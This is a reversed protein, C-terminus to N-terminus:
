IPRDLALASRGIEGLFNSKNFVRQQGACRLLVIGNRHTDRSWFFRPFFFDYFYPQFSIPYVDGPRSLTHTNKVALRKNKEVRRCGTLRLRSFHVFFSRLTVEEYGQDVPTYLLLFSRHYQHRYPCRFKRAMSLYNM